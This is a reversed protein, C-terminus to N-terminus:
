HVRDNYSTEYNKYVDMSHNLLYAGSLSKYVSRRVLQSRYIGGGFKIQPPIIIYLGKFLSMTVPDPLDNIYALFLCPGLVSGQPVGSLVPLRDSCKGEVIVQQSRKSLFSQIFSTVKNEIGLSKLKHVLKHHNVKDFAKRFDM